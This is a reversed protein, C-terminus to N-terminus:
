GTKCNSVPKVM